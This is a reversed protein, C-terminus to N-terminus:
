TVDYGRVQENALVWESTNVGLDNAAAQVAGSQVVGGFFTYSIDQQHIFPFLLM